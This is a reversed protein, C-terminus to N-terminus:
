KAKLSYFFAQSFTCDAGECRKFLGYLESPRKKRLLGNIQVWSVPPYDTGQRNLNIEKVFNEILEQRESTFTTKPQPRSKIIDTIPQM